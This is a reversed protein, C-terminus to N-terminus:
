GGGTGPDTIGLDSFHQVTIHGATEAKCQESQQGDLVGEKKPSNGGTFFRIIFFVVISVLLASIIFRTM